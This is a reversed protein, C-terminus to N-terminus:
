YPTSNNPLRSQWDAPLLRARQAIQDIDYARALTLVDAPLGDIVARAQAGSGGHSQDITVVQGTRSKWYAEYAANIDKYLERTPDYSVNLLRLQRPTQPRGLLPALLPGGVAAVGLARLVSRRSRRNPLM